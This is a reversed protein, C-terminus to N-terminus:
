YNKSSMSNSLICIHVCYKPNCGNFTLKKVVKFTSSIKIIFNSQYQFIEQFVIKPINQPLSAKQNSLVLCPRGGRFVSFPGYATLM